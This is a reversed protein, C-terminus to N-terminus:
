RWLASVAFGTLTAAMDTVNHALAPVVVSRTREFWYAYFIGLVFAYIMQFLAQWWVPQSHGLAFLMASILAAWSVAFRGIRIVGPMAASLYGILLSRFLIEETPGVYVGEFISWGAVSAPTLPHSRPPPSHGLINPLYAVLTFLACIALAWLAATAVEDLRRPLRLGFDAVMFRKLIAIATLALAAQAGHQVFLWALLHSEPKASPWGYSTAASALRAAITPLGYGLLVAVPIPVLAGVTRLTQRRRNM